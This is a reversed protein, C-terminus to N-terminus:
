KSSLPFNGLFTFVYGYLESLYVTPLSFSVAPSDLLCTVHGPCKLQNRESGHASRALTHQCAHGAKAPQLEKWNGPAKILVPQRRIRSPVTTDQKFPYSPICAPLDRADVLLRRPVALTPPALTEEISGSEEKSSPWLPLPLSALTSLKTGMGTHNQTAYCALNVATRAGKTAHSSHAM